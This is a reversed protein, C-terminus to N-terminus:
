DKVDTVEKGLEYAVNEHLFKMRNVESIMSKIEQKIIESIIALCTERNKSIAVVVKDDLYNWAKGNIEKDELLETTKLNYKVIYNM